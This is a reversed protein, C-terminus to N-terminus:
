GGIFGGHAVARHFANAALNVPTDHRIKDTEFGSLGGKAIDVGPKTAHKAPRQILQDRRMRLQFRLNVGAFFLQEWLEGFRPCFIRRKIM